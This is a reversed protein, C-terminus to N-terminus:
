IMTGRLNDYYTSTKYTIHELLFILLDCCLVSEVSKSYLLIMSKQTLEIYAFANLIVGLLRGFHDRCQTFSSVLESIIFNIGLHKFSTCSKLFM